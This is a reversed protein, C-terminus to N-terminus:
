LPQDRRALFQRWRQRLAPDEPMAAPHLPPLLTCGDISAYDGRRTVDPHLYIRKSDPDIGLLDADFLAHIDARLPLGNTVRHSHMGDFPEIHAAELVAATSCGSVACREGYIRLVNVRFTAQGDRAKWEALVRRAAEVIAPSQDGISELLEEIIAISPDPPPLPELSLQPLGGGQVSYARAEALRAATKTVNQASRRATPLLDEPVGIGRLATTLEARSLPDILLSEITRDDHEERFRVALADIERRLVDDLPPHLFTTM